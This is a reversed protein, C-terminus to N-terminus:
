QTIERIDSLAVREGTALTLTMSGDDNVGVSNVRSPVVTDISQLEGQDDTGYVTLTYQGTPMPNGQEDTGDWIVTKEGRNLDGISLEKIPGSDDTVVVKVDSLPQDLELRFQTEEGQTHSVVDGITQVSKGIMGAAQLTQMSQFGLTMAQISENMNQTAELQSMQTLDTVFKTADMPQNPDQNQLQVTLLRLFDEQGLQQAPATKQPEGGQQLASIYDASNSNIDPLQIAM